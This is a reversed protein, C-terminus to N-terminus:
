VNVKRAEDDIFMEVSPHYHTRPELFPPVSCLDVLVVVSAEVYSLLIFSHFPSHLFDLHAFFPV